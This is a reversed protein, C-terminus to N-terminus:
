MYVEARGEPVAPHVPMVAILVIVPDITALAAIGFVVNMSFQEAGNCISVFPPWINATWSPPWIVAIFVVDYREM